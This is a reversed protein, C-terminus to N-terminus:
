DDTEEPTTHLVLLWDDEDQVWEGCNVSAGDREAEIFRGAVHGPPGDFRIVTRKAIAASLEPGGHKPCALGPVFGNYADPREHQGFAQKGCFGAPVGPYQFLPVSCEGVMKRESHTKERETM